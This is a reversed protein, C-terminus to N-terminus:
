VDYEVEVAIKEPVLSKPIIIELVNSSTLKSHIKDFYVQAPLDIIERVPWWYCNEKLIVFNDKLFTQNREWSVLLRYDKIKIEISDKQVWWLPMIIVIEQPSEYIDYPINPVKVSNKM